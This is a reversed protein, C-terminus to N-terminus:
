TKSKIRHEGENVGVLVDALETDSEGSGEEDDEDGLEEGEIEECDEEGDSAM